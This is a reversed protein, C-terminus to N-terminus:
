CRMPLGPPGGFDLRDDPMTAVIDPWEDDRGERLTM